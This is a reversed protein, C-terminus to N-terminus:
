PNLPLLLSSSFKNHSSSIFQSLMWKSCKRLLSILYKLSRSKILKRKSILRKGIRLCKLLLTLAIIQTSFLQWRMWFTKTNNFTKSRESWICNSNTGFTCTKLNNILACIKWWNKLCKTQNTRTKQNVSSITSSSKMLTPFNTTM